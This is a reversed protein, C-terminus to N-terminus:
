RGRHPTTAARALSLVIERAATFAALVEVGDPHDGPSEARIADLGSAADAIWLDITETNRRVLVDRLVAALTPLQSSENATM